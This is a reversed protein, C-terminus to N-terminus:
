NISSKIIDIRGGAWTVTFDILTLRNIPRSTTISVPACIISRIVGTVVYTDLIEDSSVEVWQWHLSVEHFFQVPWISTLWVLVCGTSPIFIFHTLMSVSSDAIRASPKAM